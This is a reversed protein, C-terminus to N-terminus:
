IPLAGQVGSTSVPRWKVAWWSLAGAAAALALIWLVAASQSRELRGPAGPMYGAVYTQYIIGQRTLLGLASEDVPAIFDPHHHDSVWLKRPSDYYEFVEFRAKPHQAVIKPVQGAAIRHISWDTTLGVAVAAALM